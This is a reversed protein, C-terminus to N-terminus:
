GTRNPIFVLYRGPNTMVGGGFTVAYKNRHFWIRNYLM